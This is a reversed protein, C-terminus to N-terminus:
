ILHEGFKGRLYEIVEKPNDKIIRKVDDPIKGAQVKLEEADVNFIEAIKDIFEDSPISKSNEIKSLYTYNVQLSGALKKISYGREERLKRFTKGFENNNM